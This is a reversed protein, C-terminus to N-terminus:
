YWELEIPVRAKLTALQEATPQPPSFASPDANHPRVVIRKVCGDPISDLVALIRPQETGFIGWQRVTLQGQPTFPRDFDYGSILLRQLKSLAPGLALIPAIDRASIAGASFDLERLGPFSELLMAYAAGAQARVHLKEVLPLRLTAFAAPPGFELSLEKLKTLKSLTAVLRAEDTTNRLSLSKLNSLPAWFAEAEPTPGWCSFSELRSLAPIERAPVQERWPVHLELRALKPLREIDLPEPSFRLSVEEWNMPGTLADFLPREFTGASKLHLAHESFLFANSHKIPVDRDFGQVQNVTRLAPLGVINKLSRPDIMLWSPFGRTFRADSGQSLPLSWEAKNRQEKCLERERRLGDPTALGKARALQLSIFEGRLNGRETLADAFVLRPADDDPAAYIAALFADDSKQNTAGTAKARSATGREKEFFAELEQAKKELAAPLPGPKVQDIENATRRFVAAFDDSVTTTVIAKYRAALDELGSRARRDGSDAILKACTRFFPMATRATYPPKELWGFIGTVVRPDNLKSLLTLREVAVASKSSGVTALLRPVDLVDKKEYLELWKEVDAKKGSDGVLPRPQPLARATAWEAIQAFRPDKCKRWAVIAEKLAELADM